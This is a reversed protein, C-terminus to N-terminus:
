GGDFNLDKYKDVNGFHKLFSNTYKLVYPDQVQDAGYYQRIYDM